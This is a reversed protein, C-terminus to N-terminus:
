GRVSVDAGPSRYRSALRGLDFTSPHELGEDSVAALAQADRTLGALLTARERRTLTIGLPIALAAVVVLTLLLYGAVLRRRVRPPRAPLGRGAGDGGVRCRRAQPSSLRRARG